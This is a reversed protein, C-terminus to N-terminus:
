RLQRARVVRPEELTLLNATITFNCPKARTSRTLNRGRGGRDDGRSKETIGPNQPAPTSPSLDFPKALNCANNKYGRRSYASAIRRLLSSINGGKRQPMPLLILFTTTPIRKRTECTSNFQSSGFTTQNFCSSDINQCITITLEKKKKKLYWLYEFYLIRRVIKM